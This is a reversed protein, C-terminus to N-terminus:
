VVKHSYDSQQLVSIFVDSLIGDWIEEGSDCVKVTVYQGSSDSNDSVVTVLYDTDLFVVYTQVSNNSM